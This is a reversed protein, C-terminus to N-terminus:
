SIVELTPGAYTIKGLLRLKMTMKVVTMETNKRLSM